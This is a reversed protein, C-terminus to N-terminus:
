NMSIEVIKWLYIDRYNFHLIANSHDEIKSNRALEEPLDKPYNEQYQREMEESAEELSDFTFTEIEYGNSKVLLFRKKEDLERIVGRLRRIENHCERIIEDDTLM